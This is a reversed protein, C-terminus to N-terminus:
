TSTGERRSKVDGGAVASIGGGAEVLADRVATGRLDRGADVEVDTNAKVRIADGNDELLVYNGKATRILIRSEEPVDRIKIEHGNAFRLVFTNVEENYDWALVNGNPLVTEVLLNPLKEPDALTTESDSLASADLRSGALSPGFPLWWPKRPDADEFFVFVTEGRQPVAIRGSPVAANDPGDAFSTAPRAWMANVSVIEEPKDSETTPEYDAEGRPNPANEVKMEAAPPIDPMLRPIWVAIRGEMLPDARSVVIARLFGELSIEGVPSPWRM